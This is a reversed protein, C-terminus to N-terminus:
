VFMLYATKNLTKSNGRDYEWVDEEARYEQVGDERLNFVAFTVTV